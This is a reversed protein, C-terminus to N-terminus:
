AKKDTKKSKKSKPNYELGKKLLDDFSLDGPDVTIDYKGDNKPSTKKKQEKAMQVFNPTFYFRRM